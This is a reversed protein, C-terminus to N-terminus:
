IKLGYLYEDQYSGDPEKVGDPVTAIRTFGQKEYFNSADNASNVWLHVQEVWSVEKAKQILLQILEAGVGKKRESKKVAVDSIVAVHKKKPRYNPSIQAYAVLENNENFSGYYGFIPLQVGYSIMSTFTAVPLNVESELNSTWAKPDERLTELRLNKFQEADEFTLPRIM